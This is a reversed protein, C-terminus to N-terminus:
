KPIGRLSMATPNKKIIAKLFFPFSITTVLVMIVLSGYVEADIISHTLAVEAIVLELTGRSNMAWGVISTQPWNFKTWPKALVAALLKGLTGAVLIVALVMPNAAITTVDLQLGMNIFFFPIIFGLTMIKLSQASRQLFRRHRQHERKLDGCTESCKHKLSGQMIMGALLAGIIEGLGLQLSLVAVLLGFIMIMAVEAVNSEDKEIHNVLYPMLKTLGWIVGAFALIQIPIAAVDEISGELYPILFTLFLIAFLGDVLASGFLVKALRKKILGMEMFLQSNTAESSIALCVGIVLSTLNSYGLWQGAFYGFVLPTGISFLGIILSRKREAKLHELNMEMGIVLFLFIVGIEALFEIDMMSGETIIVKFIPLGILAGALIQGLVRPYKFHTAVESFLFSILLTFSIAVLPTAEM